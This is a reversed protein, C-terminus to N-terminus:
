GFAQSSMPRRKGTCISLSGFCVVLAVLSSKLAFFHFTRCHGLGDGARFGNHHHLQSKVKQGGTGHARTQGRADLLLPILRNGTHLLHQWRGGEWQQQHSIASNDASAALYIAVACCSIFLRRAASALM